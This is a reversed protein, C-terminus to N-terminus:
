GNCSPGVSDLKVWFPKLGWGTRLCPAVTRSRPGAVTSWTEIRVGDSSLTRRRMKGQFGRNRQRYRGRWTDIGVTGDATEVRRGALRPWCRAFRTGSPSHIEPERLM